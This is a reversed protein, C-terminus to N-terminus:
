EKEKLEMLIRPPTQIEKVTSRIVPWYPTRNITVQFKNHLDNIGIFEVLGQRQSGKCMFTITKGILHKFAPDSRDILNQTNVAKAM